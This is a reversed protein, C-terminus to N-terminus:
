IQYYDEELAIHIYYAETMNKPDKLLPTILYPLDAMVFSCMTLWTM